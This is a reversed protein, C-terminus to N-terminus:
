LAVPGAPLALAANGLAILQGVTKADAARAPDFEVGRSDELSFVIEAIQLSSLGLDGLQTHEEVVVEHARRGRMAHKVLSSVEDVTIPNM